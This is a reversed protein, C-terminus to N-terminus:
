KKEIRMLERDSPGVSDFCEEYEEVDNNRVFQMSSVRGQLDDYKDKLLMIHTNNVDLGELSARYLLDSFKEDTGHFQENELFAKFNKNDRSLKKDGCVGYEFVFIGEMLRLYEEMKQVNKDYDKNFSKVKM